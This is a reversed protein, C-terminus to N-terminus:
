SVKSYIQDVREKSVGNSAMDTAMAEVAAECDKLLDRGESTESCISVVQEERFVDRLKAPLYDRVNVLFEGHRRQSPKRGRRLKLKWKSAMKASVATYYVNCSVRRAISVLGHVEMRKGGVTYDGLVFKYGKAQRWNCIAEEFRRHDVGMTTVSSTFKLVQAVALGYNKDKIAKICPRDQGFRLKMVNDKTRPIINNVRMEMTKRCIM